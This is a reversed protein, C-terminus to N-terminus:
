TGTTGTCKPTLAITLPNFKALMNHGIRQNAV